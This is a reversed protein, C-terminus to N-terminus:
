AHVDKEWAAIADRMSKARAPQEAALNRREGVDTSLDFLAPEEGPMQVLKWKGQRMARQRGHGWFLTRESVGARQTWHPLLSMGDLKRAPRAVGAADLFTPFLDLTIGTADSQGAKIAGPWCAIAPVRHGGEWLSSKHGRLPGNSSMPTGGNDSVFVILTDKELGARRVADVVAGVSADMSELMERFAPKYDARPQNNHKGPERFAKDHPGQYPSHVAEHALYLFFPRSKNEEIFRLGHKSILDTVYGEEPALKDGNWWDAYGAQDVHSVYDVNGSVYGRFEDFGHHVPNFKPLYGLHWKGFIATRYGAKQLLKPFTIESTSMGHDRNNAATIVDPIGARQQYRGTMLGARTPSCVAGSSHFDTFRIGGAALRDLNPTRIGGYCGIDGYGLDDALILIINPKRRAAAFAATGAAALFSRRTM